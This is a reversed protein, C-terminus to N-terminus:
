DDGGTARERAKIEEWLRQLIEADADEERLGKEELRERLLRYRNGMRSLARGILERPHAEHLRCLNVTALLLDGLEEELAERAEAPAQRAEALEEQVKQWAGEPENWTLPLHAMRDLLRVARLLPPLSHPLEALADTSHNREAEHVKRQEWLLPDAPAKGFVQPHRAEMKRLIQAVVEPRDFVGSEEGLVLQFAVHLLLDGLEEAVEEPKGRDIAELLEHTEELLYPGLSRATQRRDWPCGDPSRLRRVLDMVQELEQGGASSPKNHPTQM